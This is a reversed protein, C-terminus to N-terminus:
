PFDLIIFVKSVDELQYPTELRASLWVDNLVPEVSGVTGIVLHLPFDPSLSVVQNGSDIAADRPILDLFPPVGGKLLAKSADPGIAVSSRWEPNFITEVVSQTRRVNKIRGLLVNEGVLVPMGSVVSDESGVDIVILRRDNFPYRSYVRAVRYSFRGSTIPREEVAGLQARLKQNELKLDWLKQYDFSRDWFGFVRYRAGQLLTNIGDRYFFIVLLFVVALLPVLFIRPSKM